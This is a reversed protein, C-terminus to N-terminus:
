DYSITKTNVNADMTNEDVSRAVVTEKMETTKTDSTHVIGIKSTSISNDSKVLTVIERIQSEDFDLIGDNDRSLFMGDFDVLRIPVYSPNKNKNRYFTFYDPYSINKEFTSGMIVLGKKNLARAMHQGVSDVGLFYDCESILSMWIRLDPTHDMCISTFDQPHRFRHEGFYIILFENSLQRVINYYDEQRLSRNTYDIVTGNVLETASGYPQFVLLKKKGTQMKYTNITERIKLKEYENVYLKPDPLDSHDTTNNIIEDFAEAMSLTQNYYGHVYYPEPAVVITDKIVDFHGKQMASFTRKQLTPHSWLLTEWGSILIKFDDNPNLKEYKELAPIACIIRGAGGSLLFTTSKKM